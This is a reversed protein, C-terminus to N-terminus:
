QTSAPSSDRLDIVPEPAVTDSTHRGGHTGDKFPLDEALDVRMKATARHLHTKISGASIGMSNAVEDVSLDGLHRLIVVDRQKRPLSKIADAVVIRTVAADGPTDSDSRSTANTSLDATLTVMIAESRGSKRVEDIVLNGLVRLLWADPNPHRSVTSWRAYARAFAEATVDEALAHDRTLRTAVGIARPSM